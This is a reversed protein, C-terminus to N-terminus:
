ALIQPTDRERQVVTAARNWRQPESRRQGIARLRSVGDFGRDLDAEAVEVGGLPIAVFGVDAGREFFQEGVACDAAVLQEHGRSSNNTVV